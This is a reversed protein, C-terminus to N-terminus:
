ANSELTFYFTAGRNVEGEAWVQGGHRHIIRQVTALGIGTGPFESLNHMRQFPAFLNKTYTMDFGAGNDRVFFTRKGQLSACGFEIRANETRGTFKFANNLLNSLTLELLHPDGDANLGEAIVFEVDREPSMDMLYVAITRATSTLDVREHRMEARTVRSFGLLDDILQGMRQTETRVLTLYRQARDDLQSGFDEILAQSWGDIGRLPARLDHSVSYSFAELEKNAAELEATRKVVRMELDSNLKQIVEEARKRESIDRVIRQLQGDPLMGSSIEVPLLTGDKRIFQRESIITSGRRLEDRCVPDTSAEEPAILDAINKTLIEDHGYGLMRCGSTNVDSSKGHADSIFIGDPALEVLTRYREESHRLMEAKQYRDRYRQTHQERGIYVVVVGTGAILSIALVIMLWLHERMPAYAEEIDM